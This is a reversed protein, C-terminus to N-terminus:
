PAEEEEKSSEAARELNEKLKNSSAELHSIEERIEAIPSALCTLLQIKTQVDNAAMAQM